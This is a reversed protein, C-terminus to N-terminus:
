VSTTVANNGKKKKRSSPMVNEEMIYEDAFSYLVMVFYGTYLAVLWDSSIRLLYTCFPAM